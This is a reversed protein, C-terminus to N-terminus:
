MAAISTSIADCSQFIEHKVENQDNHGLPHLPAMSLVVPIVFTHRSM